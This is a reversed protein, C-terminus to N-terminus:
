RQRSFSASGHAHRRRWQLYPISVVASAVVYAAVIVMTRVGNFTTAVIVAIGIHRTACAIALATREGPQPGGLLHGIAVALLMLILLAVMGPWQVALLIRWHLVLLAIAAVALAIGATASIWDAFRRSFAPFAASLSMGVALPLLFAKAISAAVDTWSLEESVGFHWALLAVWAPVIVIALLSTTLVLSFAYAGGGFGDLKRSLLPAGASVAVVLLAAKAGDDLPLSAVLLYAALPVLVYMALLSRLLLGPRRWLYTVDAFTAGMGIALVLAIISAKVAVLLFFTM